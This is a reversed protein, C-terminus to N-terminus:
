SSHHHKNSFLRLIQISVILNVINSHMRVCICVYMYVYMCAHTCAYRCVYMYLYMCLIRVYYMCAFMCAYLCVYMCVCMCVNVCIHKHTCTQLMIFVQWSWKLSSPYKSSRNTPLLDSRPIGQNPCIRWAFIILGPTRCPARYPHSLEHGYSCPPPPLQGGGGLIKGVLFYILTYLYPEFLSIAWHIKYIVSISIFLITDKKYTLTIYFFQGGGLGLVTGVAKYNPRSRCSTAPHLTNRSCLKRTFMTENQTYVM